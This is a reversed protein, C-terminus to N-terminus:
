QTESAARAEDYYDALLALTEESIARRVDGAHRTVGRASLWKDVAIELATLDAM